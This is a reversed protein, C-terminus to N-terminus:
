CHPIMHNRSARGQLRLQFLPLCSRSFPLLSILKFAALPLHLSSRIGGSIVECPFGKSGLFTENKMPRWAMPLKICGTPDSLHKEEQIGICSKKASKPIFLKHSLGFSQFVVNMELHPIGLMRVESGQRWHKEATVRKGHAKLIWKETTCLSTGREQAKAQNNNKDCM